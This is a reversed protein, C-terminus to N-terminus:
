HDASDHAPGGSRHAVEPAFRTLLSNEEACDLGLASCLETGPPLDWDKFEGFHAQAIRGRADCFFFVTPM